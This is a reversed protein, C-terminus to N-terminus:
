CNEKIERHEAGLILLLIESILSEMIMYLISLFFFFSTSHNVCLIPRRLFGILM